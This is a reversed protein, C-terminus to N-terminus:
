INILKKIIICYPYFPFFFYDFKAIQNLKINKKECNNLFIIMDYYLKLTKYLLSNFKDLINQDINNQQFVSFLHHMQFVLFEIGNGNIFNILTNNLKYIKINEEGKGLLLVYNNLNDIYIDSGKQTKLNDSLFKLICKYNLKKFYDFIEEKDSYFNDFDNILDFKVDINEAIYSYNGNLKLLESIAEDNLNKNIIFFDGIIGEFKSEGLKLKMDKGKKYQIQKTFKKFPIKNNKDNYKRVNDNIRSNSNSEIYNIYLDLKMSEKSELSKSICVFYDREKLISFDDIIWENKNNVIKIRYNDDVEKSLIFGLLINPNIISYDCFAFIIIENNNENDINANLLRFSFIISFNKEKIEIRDLIIPNKKKFYFGKRLTFNNNDFNEEKIITSLLSLSNSYFNLNLIGQKYIVKFLMNTTINNKYINELFNVLMDSKEYIDKGSKFNLLKLFMPSKQIKLKLQFNNSILGLIITMTFYLINVDENKNKELFDSMGEILDELFSINIENSLILDAVINIYIEVILKCINLPITEFYRFLFLLKFFKQIFLHENSNISRKLLIVSYITFFIKQLHNRGSNKIKYDNNHNEDCFLLKNIININKIFKSFSKIINNNKFCKKYKNNINLKRFFNDINETLKNMLLEKKIIENYQEKSSYVSNISNKIDKFTLKTTNNNTIINSINNSKLSENKSSKKSDM